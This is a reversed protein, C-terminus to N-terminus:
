PGGMLRTLYDDRIKLLAQDLYDMVWQSFVTKADQKLMTVKRDLSMEKLFADIDGQTYQNIYDDVKNKISQPDFHGVVVDNANILRLMPLIFQNTVDVQNHRDDGCVSKALLPNLKEIRGPLLQHNNVNPVHNNIYV